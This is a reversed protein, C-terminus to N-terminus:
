EEISVASVSQDTPNTYDPDQHRRLANVCESFTKTEMNKDNVGFTKAYVTYIARESIKGFHTQFVDVAIAGKLFHKGQKKKAQTNTTNGM